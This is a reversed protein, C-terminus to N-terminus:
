LSDFVQNGFVWVGGGNMVGLGKDMEFDVRLSRTGEGSKFM